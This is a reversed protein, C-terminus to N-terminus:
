NKNELDKVKDSLEQIAKVLIPIISTEKLSFRDEDKSIKYTSILDPIIDMVDQAVFGMVSEDSSIYKFTAPKLLNVEDLGYRFTYDIDKKERADSIAALNGSVYQVAGGGPNLMLTYATSGIGTGDYPYTAGSTCQIFSNNTGSVQGILVHVDDNWTTSGIFLTYSGVTKSTVSKSQITGNVTLDGTIKTSPSTLTLLGSNYRFRVVGDGDGIIINNEVSVMGSNINSGIITNGYGIGVTSITNCGIIINASDTGASGARYGIVTSGSVDSGNYLAEHGIVTNYQGDVNSYMSRYGIATNPGNISSFLSQFGLAVNNSGITNYRMSEYGISTNNIGTTNLVMSYYGIATNKSGTTNANLSAAGIATSYSGSINSKLSSSGISTNYEGTKNNYLSQFGISTNDRGTENSYLSGVGISTNYRGTTNTFMSQYGISTNNTGHPSTNSFLSQFGFVTNTIISSKGRGITIGNIKADGTSPNFSFKTNSIKFSVVGSIASSWIPFMDSNTFVDNSVTPTETVWSSTVSNWVYTIRDSTDFVKLGNYKYVIATRASSGSAVIRYDIPASYQLNFGDTINIAM